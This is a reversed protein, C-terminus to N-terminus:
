HMTHSVDIHISWWSLLYFSNLKSITKRKESGYRTQNWQIDSTKFLNIFYANPNRHWRPLYGYIQLIVIYYTKLVNLHIHNQRYLTLLQAFLNSKIQNSKTQYLVIIISVRDKLHSINNNHCIPTLICCIVWTFVLRQVLTLKIVLTLNAWLRLRYAFM